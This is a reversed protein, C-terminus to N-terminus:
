ASEERLETRGMKILAPVEIDLRRKIGDGLAERTRELDRVMKKLGPPELSWAQDSGKWSRNLSFHKEMVRAGMMFAVPALAIGNYHDSLGIVISPYENRLWTICALNMDRAECPYASVCHLLALPARDWILDVADDIEKPTAGGTSLILPLGTEAAAQLLPRNVISASALKLAPVGLRELFGVSPVDWATAFFVLGLSEAYAKLERYQDVEFELAARHEGYTAGFGHESHYPQDWKPDVSAWTALDRRQLKVAWAGADAAAKMMQKCVELSGMHNAGLEAVCVAGSEDTILTDAIVIERM